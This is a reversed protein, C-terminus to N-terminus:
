VDLVREYLHRLVIRASLQPGDESNREALVKWEPVRSRPPCIPNLAHYSRSLAIIVPYPTPNTLNDVTSYPSLAPSPISAKFRDSSRAKNVPCARSLAM